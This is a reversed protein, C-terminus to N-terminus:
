ELVKGTLNQYMRGLYGLFKEQEEPTFGRLSVERIKKCNQQWKKQSERGKDTISISEARKREALASRQILGAQAMNNLLQSVTAPEIDLATAIERQMCHNNKTLYTLIKPQGPSLGIKLMGPRLNNKQAHYTQTVAWHLEATM